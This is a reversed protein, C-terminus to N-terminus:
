AEPVATAIWGELPDIVDPLGFGHRGQDRRAECWAAQILCLLADLADGSPDEICQNKLEDHIDLEVGLSTVPSLLGAMLDVRAQHRSADQKARDDSKYSRRGLVSRALLGPYGEIVVRQVDGSHLGPMHVGSSLLVPLASHLMLAVPPNVWKMSPSSGAPRDCARHAFKHGVPRPACFARLQDVWQARTWASVRQAMSAWDSGLDLHDVLERPLGFPLDLVALWPGSDNLAAEFRAAHEWRQLSQVSLIKVTSGALEGSM